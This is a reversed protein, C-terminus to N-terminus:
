GITSEVFDSFRRGVEEWSLIGPCPGLDPLGEDGNSATRSLFIRTSIRDPEAEGSLPICRGCGKLLQWTPDDAEPQQRLYLIPKGSAIYNFAKAPIQLSSRNGILLLGAASALEEISEQYSRWGPFEVKLRDDKPMTSVISPDVFGVLRIRIPPFSPDEALAQRIYRLAPSLNRSGRSATGTYALVIEGSQPRPRRELLQGDFGCPIVVAPISTNFTNRQFAARTEETTFIIGSTTALTRRELLRNRFRIHPYSAPALPNMSWPDGFEAVWPKRWQSALRAAAIHATNSGSSSVIADPPHAGTAQISKERADKDWGVRVDPACLLGALTAIGRHMFM